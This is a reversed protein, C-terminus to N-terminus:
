PRQREPRQPDAGAPAPAVPTPAPTDTKPAGDGTRPPRASKAEFNQVKIKENFSKASDLAEQTFEQQLTPYDDDLIHATLFVYLNQRSKSSARSQFLRGIIPLDGLIPVKDVVLESNDRALGGIIYLQSDPITVRSTVTNTSKDPLSGSGTSARAFSSVELTLDLLVVDRAITPTLKLDIGARESDLGSTSTVQGQTTQEYYIQTEVRIENEQNDDALIFPTALIESNSDTKIARLLVPLQGNNSVVGFFGTTPASPSFVRDFNNPLQEVDITSLGFASMAAVRTAEDDLNGALYELTYNLSSNDAVQLLAAELFVQRRKVDIDKLIGLIMEYEEPEAQILISNTEDHAVIRSPTVQAPTTGAAPPTTGPRARSGTGTTRSRPQGLQGQSGDILQTVTTQLDSAKLFRVRYVHTLSRTLRLKSDLEDILTQVLELEEPSTTQIIIKQTRSDPILQTVEGRLIGRSSTAPAGGAAAPNAGRGSRGLPGSSTELAQRLLDVMEYADAYYLERVELITEPGKVDVDIYKVLEQIHSLIAVKAKIILTQNQPLPVITISGSKAGGQVGLLSQLATVVTTSDAFQLQLVLTAIRDDQQAPFSAGKSFIDVNNFKHAGEAGGPQARQTTSEMTIVAVGEDTMAESVNYGNIELFIKLVEYKLPQIEVINEFEINDAFAPDESPFLVTKGTLVGILEMCGKITVKGKGLAGDQPAVSKTTTPTTPEAPPTPDQAHAGVEMGGVFLLALLGLAGSRRQGRSRSGRKVQLLQNM